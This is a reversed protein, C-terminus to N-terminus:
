FAAFKSANRQFEINLVFQKNQLHTQYASHFIYFLKLYTSLKNWVNQSLYQNHLMTVYKRICIKQVSFDSM